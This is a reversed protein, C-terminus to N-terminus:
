IGLTGMKDGNKENQSVRVGQLQGQKTGIPCVECRWSDGVLLLVDNRLFYKKAFCGFVDWIPQICM